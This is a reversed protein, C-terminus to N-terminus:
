PQKLMLYRRAFSQIHIQLAARVQEEFSRDTILDLTELQWKGISCSLHHARIAGSKDGSAEGAIWSRCVFWRGRPIEATEALQRASWADFSAQRKFDVFVPFDPLLEELHAKIADRLRASLEDHFIEQNGPWSPRFVLREIYRVGCLEQNVEYSMELDFDTQSPMAREDAGSAYWKDVRTKSEQLSTLCEMESRYIDPLATPSFLFAAAALAVEGAWDICVRRAGELFNNSPTRRISIAGCEVLM